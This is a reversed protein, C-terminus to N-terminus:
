EILHYQNKGQEKANYLGQDARKIIEDLQKDGERASSIGISTTVKGVDEFSHSSILHLLKDALYIKGDGESDPTLIIFEEGGWRAFYDSERTSKSLLDSVEKLVHDGKDHGFNDNISKFNDIDLMFISFAHHHRSFRGMEINALEIFKRRNYLGTLPDIAALKELQETKLQLENTREHVLEELKFQYKYLLNNLRLSKRFVRNAFFGGAITIIVVLTRMWLETAEVYFLSIMFSKDPEFIYHDILADVLWFFLGAIFGLLIFIRPHMIESPKFLDESVDTDNEM